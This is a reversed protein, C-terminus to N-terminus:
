QGVSEELERDCDEGNRTKIKEWEDQWRPKDFLCQRDVLTRQGIGARHLLLMLHLTTTDKAAQWERATIGTAILVMFKGTSTLFEWDPFLYRWFLVARISGFPTIGLTEPNGTFGGLRGGPQETFGFAFRDGWQINVGETIHSMFGYLADVPWAAKEPVLFGLEFGYASYSKGAAREEELQQKDLPQSLGM